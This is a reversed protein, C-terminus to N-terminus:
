FDNSQYGDEFNMDQFGEEDLEDLDFDEDGYFDEDINNANKVVPAIDQEDMTQRPAEGEATVCKPHELSKGTIIESLEGYFGREFMPDFVYFLKQKEDSILEDLRTDDMVLNDYEPSSEMEVLTIEQGKEWNDNCLFFSTIQEENYGVSDLVAKHLDFFTAESDVDIIRLFTDDEDSVFTFRYIM